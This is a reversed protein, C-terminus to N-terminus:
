SSVPADYIVGGDKIEIIRTAISMLHPDHSVMIVTRPRSKLLVAILSYIIEKTNDDISATPEDLIIIDPDQLMVRLIWVVQRQGGSLSSGMKGVMSNLGENLNDFLHALNFEGLMKRVQEQTVNTHGYVINEYLTRNFLIPVQPVYGIGSRIEDISLDAYATGNLYIEGSDPMQYRMILKLITSKGSGIRGSFLVRESKRIVVSLDDLIPRKSKSYKFVIHKLEIANEQLEAENNNLIPAHSQAKPKVAYLKDLETLDNPNFSNVYDKVLGQRSILHRISQMLDLVNNFMYMVILFLSVFVGPTLKNTRVMVFSRWMFGVIFAIEVPLMMTKFNLSCKVMSKLWGTYEEQLIALRKNEQPLQNTNYISIMNRLIDDVDEHIRNQVVDKQVAAESCWEPARLVIFMVAIVLLLMIVGLWKDFYFFYVTAVLGTLVQPILQYKYIEMIHYLATPMKVLKSIILGTEQEDYAVSNKKMIYNIMHSRIEHQILPFVKLENIENLFGAVQMVVILVVVVTFPKWLNQPDKQIASVVKGYYHPIMIDKIPVTVLVIVYFVLIWPHKRTFDAIITLMNFDPKAPIPIISKM